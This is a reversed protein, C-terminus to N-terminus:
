PLLIGTLKESVPAASTEPNEGMINLMTIPSSIEGSYIMFLIIKLSLYSFIFYDLLCAFANDFIEM